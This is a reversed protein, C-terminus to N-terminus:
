DEAARRSRQEVRVATDEALQQLQSRYLQEIEAPAEGVFVLIVVNRDRVVAYGSTLDSRGFVRFDIWATADPASHGTPEYTVVLGEFGWPAMCSLMLSSLADEYAIADAEFQYWM